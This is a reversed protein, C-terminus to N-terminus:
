SATQHGATPDGARACSGCVRSGDVMRTVTMRHCRQCKRGIFVEPPGTLLTLSREALLRQVDERLRYEGDESRFILDWAILEHILPTLRDLTPIGRVWGGQEASTQDGDSSSPVCLIAM